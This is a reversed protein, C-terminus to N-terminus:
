AALRRVEEVLQGVDVEDGRPYWRIQGRPDIVVFRNTHVVEPQGGPTRAMPPPAGVKFGTTLLGEIQARDGTLFRWAGPDAGFRRAYEALAEPTDHDPDVSFSVLTAKDLLRASRLEAQVRAMTATLAPCIDTCTTFVFNAVTVKGALDSAGFPRGQEDILSFEPAPGILPLTSAPPRCGAALFCSAASVLWYGLFRRRTARERLVTRGIDRGVDAGTVAEQRGATM